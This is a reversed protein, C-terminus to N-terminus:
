ECYKKITEELSKKNLISNMGLAIGRFLPEKLSCPDDKYCSLINQWIDIISKQTYLFNAFHDKTYEVGLNKFQEHLGNYNEYFYSFHFINKIKPIRRIDIFNPDHLKRIWEMVAAEIPSNYKKQWLTTQWQIWNKTEEKPRKCFWNLLVLEPFKDVIIQVLTINPSIFFKEHDETWNHIQMCKLKDDSLFDEVNTQDQFVNTKNFFQDHYAQAPHCKIKLLNLGVYSALGGGPAVVVIKKIM